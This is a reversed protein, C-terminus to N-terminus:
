LVACYLVACCLVACYLVAFMITTSVMEQGLEWGNFYGLVTLNADAWTKLAAERLAYSSQIHVTSLRNNYGTQNDLSSGWPETFNSPKAITPAIMM